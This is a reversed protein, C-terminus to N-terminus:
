SSTMDDRGLVELQASQAYFLGHDLSALPSGHPWQSLVRGVILAPLRESRSVLNAGAPVVM